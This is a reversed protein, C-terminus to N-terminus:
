SWNQFNGVPNPQKAVCFALFKEQLLTLKAINAMKWICTQENKDIGSCEVTLQRFIFLKRHAIFTITRPGLILDYSHNLVIEQAVTFISYVM